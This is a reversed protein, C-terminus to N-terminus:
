LSQAIKLKKIKIIKIKALLIKIIIKQLTKKAQIISIIILITIILRMKKLIIM